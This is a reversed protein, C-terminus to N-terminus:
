ENTTPTVFHLYWFALCSKNDHSLIGILCPIYISYLISDDIAFYLKPCNLNSSIFYEVITHNIQYFLLIILFESIIANVNIANDQNFIAASTTLTISDQCMIIWYNM